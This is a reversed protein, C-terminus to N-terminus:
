DSLRGRMIERNQKQWRPQWAGITPGYTTGGPLTFRPYGANIAPSGVKLSFDGTSPSVLKPDAVISHTDNGSLLVDSAWMTVLESKSTYATADVKFIGETGAGLINYDYRNRVNTGAASYDRISVGAGGGADWINNVIENDTSTYSVTSRTEAILELAGTSAEITRATNHALYNGSSGKLYIGRPGHVRNGIVRARSALKVTTTCDGKVVIGIDANKVTNNLVDAGVCGPGVLIGHSNDAGTFSVTNGAVFVRGFPNPNNTTDTGLNIGVGASTAHNNTITNGVVYLSVIYGGCYVGAGTGLNTIQNNEIRAVTCNTVSSLDIIHGTSASPVNVVNSSVLLSEVQTASGLSILTGSSANANPTVNNGTIEIVESSALNALSIMPRTNATGLTITNNEVKFTDIRTSANVATISGVSSQSGTHIDAGSISLVEMNGGSFVQGGVDIIGGVITLERATGASATDYVAMSHNVSAGGGMTCGVFTLKPQSKVRVVGSASTTRFHINSFTIVCTADAASATDAYIGIGTGTYTAGAGSSQVTITKGNEGADLELVTSAGMAYSGPAVVISDGNAAANVAAQLTAQDTPVNITAGIAWSCCLLLILAIRKM